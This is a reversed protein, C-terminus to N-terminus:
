RVVRYSIFLDEARGRSFRAKDAAPHGFRFDPLLIILGVYDIVDKLQCRLKTHMDSWTFRGM